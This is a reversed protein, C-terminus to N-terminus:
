DPLSALHPFLTKFEIAVGVLINHPLMSFFGQKKYRGLYLVM